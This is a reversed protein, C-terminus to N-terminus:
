FKLLGGLFVVHQDFERFQENTINDQMNRGMGLAYGLNASLNSNFAYGFGASFTYMWDDRKGSAVNASTYDSMGLKAGLDLTTKASLKRKYALDAGSDYYPIRGTSSVWQQGRYKFTLTDNPSLECALSAEGYFKVPSLDNVPSIHTASNDEYSRFDPGVQFSATLWKWPKGEMGVLVRQYDSSSSLLTPDWDYQEQYQHGYRYGLTLALNKKLKYGIDIGGNVDYRDVYNQYGAASSQDTMLEYYTLSANPRLFWRDLDYTLAVKARDQFQNRRERALATAYASRSSDVGAYTPATKDGDVYSFANELNFSFKDKKGKIVNNLRHATYSEDTANHYSAFDPAYGFSLTQLVKQDSLLPLLNFGVKPSVTTVWSDQAEMAGDGNVGLVNSDWSEKVGLSLETLWAPKKFDASAPKAAPAEAGTVTACLAFALPTTGAILRRNARNQKKM